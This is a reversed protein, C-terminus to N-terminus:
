PLILRVGPVAAVAAQDAEYQATLMDVYDQTWGDVNIEENLADPDAFKEVFTAIVRREQSAIMGPHKAMYARFKNMSDESLIKWMPAYVKRVPQNEPIDLLISLIDRWIVPNDENYWITLHIDPFATSLRHALESWLLGAPDAASLIKNAVRSQSGTIISSLLTAPNRMAYSIALEDNSFIQRVVKVYDVANPFFQGPAVFDQYTGLMAPNAIVVRQTDSAVNAMELLIDRSDEPLQNERGARLIKRLIDRTSEPDCVQTKYPLELTCNEELASLLLPTDSSFVGCHLIIQM